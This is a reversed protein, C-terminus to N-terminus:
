YFEATYGRRKLNCCPYADYLGASCLDCSSLGFGQPMCTNTGLLRCRSYTVNICVMSATASKDRADTENAAGNCSSSIYQITCSSVIVRWNRDQGCM